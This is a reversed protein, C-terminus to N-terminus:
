AASEAGGWKDYKSVIYLTLLIYLTERFQWGDPKEKSNEVFRKVDDLGLKLWEKYILNESILKKGSKSESLNEDNEILTDLRESKMELIHSIKSYSKMYDESISFIENFVAERDSKPIAACLIKYASLARGFIDPYKEREYFDNLQHWCIHQGGQGLHRITSEWFDSCFDYLIHRAPRGGTVPGSYRDLYKGAENYAIYAKNSLWELDIDHIEEYNIFNEIELEKFKNDVEDLYEKSFKANKDFARLHYFATNDLGDQQILYDKEDQPLHKLFTYKELLMKFPIFKKDILCNYGLFFLEDNSLQARLINSYRKRDKYVLKSEEIFKLTTYIARFYQELHLRNILMCMIEIKEKKPVQRFESSDDYRYQM